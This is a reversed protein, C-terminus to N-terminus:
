RNREEIEEAPKRRSFGMIKATGRRVIFGLTEDTRIPKVFNKPPAFGPPGVMSRANTMDPLALLPEEIILPQSPMMNEWTSESSDNGFRFLKEFAEVSSEDQGQLGSVVQLALFSTVFLSLLM